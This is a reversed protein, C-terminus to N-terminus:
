QAEPQNDHQAFLEGQIEVCAGERDTSYPARLLEYPQGKLHTQNALFIPTQNDLARHIEDSVGESEEWGPLTLIVLASSHDLLTADVGQWLDEYGQEIPSGDRKAQAELAISHAVPSLAAVGNRTIWGAARKASRIRAQKTNPHDARLPSALYVQGISRLEELVSQTTDDM